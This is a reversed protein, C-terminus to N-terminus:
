INKQYFLLYPMAYDIVESKFNSVPTVKADNYQYWYRSIPNRCYAIFHGSMGSDGMHTIVGILTYNVGTNTFQIYNALNLNEVFNIKVDFEIGKGRNLIIILIEPGTTLVTCMSTNCTKGCYNCHMINEGTMFTVKKDYEFCDYINVENNNFLNNFNNFQNFNSFKYKRVEELPFVLFFYTQYNYSLCNCLSCQTMGCNVGYFLDSIISHNTAKFNEKFNNLMLLQNRQDVFSAFNNANINMNNNKDKNLEEHLTMIIFNVLDKSDNAAVGKFLPNMSSILEKFNYPAYHTQNMNVDPWLKETLLKFASSLKQKSKDNRVFNILYKNYKFYNVFKEINCFCQLTANMYCTAGINDLGILLPSNFYQRISTANINSDLNYEPDYPPNPMPEPPITIPDKPYPDPQQIIPRKGGVQEIEILTGIEKYSSDIIPQTGNFLQLGQLFNNLKNKISSIHSSYDKSENYILAYENIILFNNPDVSGIVCVYKPNELNTKYEIIIRGDILICDLVNKDTSSYSSIGEIFLEAVKKEIIGFNDYIIAYNSTNQNIIYKNEPEIGGKSIKKIKNNSSFYAELTTKPINKILRIKEKEDSSNFNDLSNLNLKGSLIQKIKDYDCNKKMESIASDKILYYKETTNYSRNLNNQFKTFYNYLSIFAFLKENKTYSLLNNSKM